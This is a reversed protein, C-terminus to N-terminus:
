KFKEVLYSFTTNPVIKKIADFDKEELLARVRSASIVSGGSEKRPIVEFDINHQPLIRQMAHNYQQTIHDLPEEGVFRINIGLKPAIYKGFLEVDM